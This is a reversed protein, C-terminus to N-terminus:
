RKQYIGSQLELKNEKINKLLNGIKEAANEILLHLGMKAPGDKAQKNLLETFFKIAQDTQDKTQVKTFSLGSLLDHLEAITILHNLSEENAWPVPYTISQKNRSFIDYYIFTGKEALVREIESYFVNKNEINM